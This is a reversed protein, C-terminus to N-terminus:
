TRLLVKRILDTRTVIGIPQNNELIPIRGIHHEVMLDALDEVSTDPGATHLSDSMADQASVGAIKGMLEKFRHPTALYVVSGLIDLRPPLHPHAVRHLLDSLTVIGVLAGAADVVLVGSISHETLLGAVEPIPTNLQVCRPLSSMIDRATM